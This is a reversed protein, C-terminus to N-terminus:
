REAVTARTQAVLSCHWALLPLVIAAQILQSVILLGIVGRTGAITMRTAVVGLLIAYVVTIIVAKSDRLEKGIFEKEDFEPFKFVEDKEREPGQTM